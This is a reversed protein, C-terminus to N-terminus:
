QSNESSKLMITSQITKDIKTYEILEEEDFQIKGKEDIRKKHNKVTLYAEEDDLYWLELESFSEEKEAQALNQFLTNDSNNIAKKLSGLDSIYSLRIKSSKLWKNREVSFPENSREYSSFSSFYLIILLELFWIFYLVFGKPTISFISFYGTQAIITLDSFFVSPKTFLYLIQDLNSSSPVISSIPSRPHKIEIVESQNIYLDIWTIWGFYHCILGFLLISFIAIKSNTCKSLKIPFIFGILVGFFATIIVNFYPIPIFWMLYAYVFSLAFGIPLALISFIILLPLNYTKKSEYKELLEYMIPSNDAAKEVIESPIAINIEDNELTVKPDDNFNDYNIIKICDEISFPLFIKAIQMEKNDFKIHLANESEESAWIKCGKNVLYYNKVKNNKRKSFFTSIWILFTIFLMFFLCNVFGATPETEGILSPFFACSIPLVISLLLFINIVKKHQKNSLVLLYNLLEEKNKLSNLDITNAPNIYKKKWFFVFPWVILVWFILLFFAIGTGSGPENGWNLSISLFCLIILLYWHYQSIRNATLIKKKLIGDKDLTIENISKSKNYLSLLYIGVIILFIKIIILLIYPALQDMWSTLDSHIFLGDLGAGISSLGIKDYLGRFKM